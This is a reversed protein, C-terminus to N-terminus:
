VLDEQDQKYSCRLFRLSLLFRLFHLKSVVIGSTQYKKHLQKFISKIFVKIQQLIQLNINMTQLVM